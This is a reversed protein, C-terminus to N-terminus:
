VVEFYGPLVQDVLWVGNTSCYFTHGAAHMAKANVRLMVLKGHREGVKTATEPDLSLHVHHRNGKLIGTHLISDLFRDATGHYLVAPPVQPDYGLEVEVSHGQNARIFLGDKSFAFRKKDNEAVVDQLLELSLDQGKKAFAALLEAVSCWGQEDLHLGYLEPQHRLLLSLKKSIRTQVQTNM